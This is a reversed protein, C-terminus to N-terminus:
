QPVLSRTKDLQLQALRAEALVASHAARRAQDDLLVSAGVHPALRKNAQPMSELLDALASLQVNLDFHDREVQKKLASASRIWQTDRRGARSFHGALAARSAAAKGTLRNAEARRRLIERTGVLYQETADALESNNWGQVRKLNGELEDLAGPPVTKVGVKLRTTADRLINVM